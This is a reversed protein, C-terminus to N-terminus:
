ASFNQKDLGTYMDQALNSHNCATFFDIDHQSYSLEM